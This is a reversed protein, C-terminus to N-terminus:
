KIRGESRMRKKLEALESEIPDDGPAVNGVEQPGVLGLVRRWVTPEDLLAGHGLTGTRVLQAPVLLQDRSEGPAPLLSEDPRVVADNPDALTLLTAGAARVFAARRELRQQEAKDNWRADLDRGAQGLPDLEGTALWAWNMLPGANCGRVPAAFTVLGAIRRQWGARDRAIALTAGDLAAVGGLSYGLLFLRTDSPLRDRLWELNGAVAEALEILSRRTDVPSYPRPRWVGDTETGNYSGELVDRRVDFKGREVLHRLMPAFSREADGTRTGIGGFLVLKTKGAPWVFRGPQWSPTPSRRPPESV